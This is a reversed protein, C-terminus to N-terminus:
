HGLYRENNVDTLIKYAESHIDSFEHETPLTFHIIREHTKIFVHRNQQIGDIRGDGYGDLAMLVSLDVISISHTEIFKKIKEQDGQIILQILTKIETELGASRSIEKFQLEETKRQVLYNKLSEWLIGFLPNPPKVRSKILTIKEIRKLRDMFSELDDIMKVECQVFFDGLSSEIIRCFQRIFTKPEIQNPISRFAIGSFEPIYVFKSSALVMRPEDKEFKGKMNETLVPIRADPKAKSLEGKIYVTNDEIIQQGDNITWITDDNFFPKPEILAPILDENTFGTKVVRGVYYVAEGRPM